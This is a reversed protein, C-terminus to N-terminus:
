QSSRFSTFFEMMTLLSVIYPGKFYETMTLLTAIYSGKFYETMTLLTAVYCDLTEIYSEESRESHRPLTM